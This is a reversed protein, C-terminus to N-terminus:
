EGEREAAGAAARKRPAKHFSVYLDGASYGVGFLREALSCSSAALSVEEGMFKDRGESPRVKLRRSGHHPAKTVRLLVHRGFKLRKGWKECVVRRRIGDEDDFQWGWGPDFTLVVEFAKM